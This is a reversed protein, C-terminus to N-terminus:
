DFLALLSFYCILCMILAFLWWIARAVKRYKRSAVKSNAWIQQILQSQANQPKEFMTLISQEFDSPSKQAIHQFFILSDFTIPKNRKLKLSLQPALCQLAYITSIILAIAGGIALLKLIVELIQSRTNLQELFQGSLTAVTGNAVIVGAAKADSFRIWENINSFVNWLYSFSEDNIELPPPELKENM